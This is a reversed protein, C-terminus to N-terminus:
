ADPDDGPADGVPAHVEEASNVITADGDQFESLTEGDAPPDSRSGLGVGSTVIAQIGEQVPIDIDVVRERDVSVVFGGMVPNPAMPMFLTVMEEHGTADEIYEPTDATTFAIAYSGQTPYEVLKVDQFSQSKSDLLLESMENFSSYIPGIGPISAVLDYFAGEVQDSRSWERSVLGVLLILGVLGLLVGFQVVYTPISTQLVDEIVNVIPDLRSFVFNAVFGLIVLTLLLPITLVIGRILGERLRQRLGGSPGGASLLTM